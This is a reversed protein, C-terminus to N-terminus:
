ASRRKRPHVIKIIPEPLKPLEPAEKPSAQPITEGHLLDQIREVLDRAMGEYSARYVYDLTLGPYRDCLMHMYEVKPYNQGKEYQNYANPSLGAKTAFEGQKKDGYGLAARALKLRKGLALNRKPRLEASMFQQMAKKREESWQPTTIISAKM